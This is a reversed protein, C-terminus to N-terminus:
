ISTNRFLCKKCFWEDSPKEILRQKDILQKKINEYDGFFKFYQLDDNEDIYECYVDGNENQFVMRIDRIPTLCIMEGTQMEIFGNIHGYQNLGNKLRDASKLYEFSGDKHYFNIIVTDNELMVANKIDSITIMEPEKCSNTLEIFM